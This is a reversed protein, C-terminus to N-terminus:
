ILMMEAVFLVRTLVASLCKINRDTNHLVVKM